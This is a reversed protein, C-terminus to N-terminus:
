SRAYNWSEGGRKIGSSILHTNKIYSVHRLPCAVGIRAMAVSNRFAALLLVARQAFTATLDPLTKRRASLSNSNSTQVIPLQIKM